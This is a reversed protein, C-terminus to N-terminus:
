EESRRNRHRDRRLKQLPAGVDRRSLALHGGGVGVDTKGLRSVIGRQSEGGGGTKNRGIQRVQHGVRTATPGRTGRERLCQEIKAAASGRQLAGLGCVVGGNGRVPLSDEGGKLLHLVIKGIQAIQGFLRHM